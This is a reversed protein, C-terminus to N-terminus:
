PLRILVENRKLMGPTWPPDYGAFEISGTSSLDKAEMWQRLKKEMEAKTQENIQGSFRLVAFKGGDRKEVTVDDSSPVPIKSAAVEAPLLFSMRGESDEAEPKMFVPTTMSVKSSSENSGSIYQFLRGFSGDNGQSEFNATTTVLMLDPYERIEFQGDSEVVTYKASEYGSRSTMKWGFWGVGFAVIALVLYIVTKKSM